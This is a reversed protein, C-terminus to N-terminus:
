TMTKILAWLGLKSQRQPNTYTLYGTQIDTQDGTTTKSPEELSPTPYQTVNAEM